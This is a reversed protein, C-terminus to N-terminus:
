KKANIDVHSALKLQCLYNFIETLLQTEWATSHDSGIPPTKLCCSPFMMVLSRAVKIMPANEAAAKALVGAALAVGAAIGVFASALVSTLASTFASAFASPLFSPLFDSFATLSVLVLSTGALSVGLSVTFFYNMPMVALTEYGHNAPKKMSLLVKLSRSLDHKRITLLARDRHRKEGAHIVSTNPDGGEHRRENEHDGHTSALRHPKVHARDVGIGAQANHGDTQGHRDAL